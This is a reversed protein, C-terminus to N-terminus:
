SSRILLFRLSNKWIKHFLKDKDSAFGWFMRYDLVKKTISVRFSMDTSDTVIDTPSTTFLFPSALRVNSSTSGKNNLSFM